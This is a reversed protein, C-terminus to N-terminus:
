QTTKAAAGQKELRGLIRKCVPEERRNGKLCNAVARDQADCPDKVRQKPDDCWPYGKMLDSGDGAGSLMRQAKQNAQEQADLLRSIQRVLKQQEAAAEPSRTAAEQAEALRQLLSIVEQQGQATAAPATQAVVPLVVVTLVAVFARLMSLM